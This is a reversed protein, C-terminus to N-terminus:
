SSNYKRLESNEGAAEDYPVFLLRYSLKCIQFGNLEDKTRIRLNSYFKHTRCNWLPWNWCLYDIFLKM